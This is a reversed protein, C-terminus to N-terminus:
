WESDDLLARCVDSIDVLGRLGADDMVPLHRFRGSTMIKAADRISTSPTIVTPRTDGRGDAVARDGDRGDV